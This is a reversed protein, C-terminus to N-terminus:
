QTGTGEETAPATGEATAEATAEGAQELAGSQVMETAEAVMQETGGDMEAPGLLEDFMQAADSYGRRVAEEAIDATFAEVKARQEREAVREPTPEFNEIMRVQGTKYSRLIFRKTRMVPKPLQYIPHMNAGTTAHKRFLPEGTVPDEKQVKGAKMAELDLVEMEYIIAGTPSGDDYVGAPKAGRPPVLDPKVRKPIQALNGIQSGAM